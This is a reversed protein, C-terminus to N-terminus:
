RKRCASTALTTLLIYDSARASPRMEPERM